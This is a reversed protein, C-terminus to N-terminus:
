KKGGKKFINNWNEEMEEESVETPRRTDGKGSM